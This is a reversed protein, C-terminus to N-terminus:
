SVVEELHARQFLVMELRLLLGALVMCRFTDQLMNSVVTLLPRDTSSVGWEIIFLVIKRKSVMCNSKVHKALVMLFVMSPIRKYDM